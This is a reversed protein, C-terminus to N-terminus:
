GAVLGGAAKGGSACLASPPFRETRGGAARALGRPKGGALPVPEGAAALSVM